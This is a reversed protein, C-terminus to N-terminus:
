ADWYVLPVWLRAHPFRRNYRARLRWVVALECVGWGRVGLLFARADSTCRAEAHRLLEARTGEAVDCAEALLESVHM